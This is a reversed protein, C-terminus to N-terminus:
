TVGRVLEVVEEESMGHRRAEDVLARALTVLSARASPADSKVVAGRRRRLEIVGDDRLESYARLVTHMNVGLAQALERAPPLQEGPAVEARAIARRIGGAIQDYLPVSSSTDVEFFM